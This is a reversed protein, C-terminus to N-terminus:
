HLGVIVANSPYKFKGLIEHKDLDKDDKEKEKEKEEEEEEEEKDNEIPITYSNSAAANEQAESFRQLRSISTLLV